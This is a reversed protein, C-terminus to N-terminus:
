LAERKYNKLLGERLARRARFLYSKVTGEPLKTIEGIEAYTLEETHYLTILTKLLPSLKDVEAQLISGLEQKLIRSETENEFPDFITNNTNILTDHTHEDTLNDLLILKKKELYGLCTHYAIQGVWTSLKSEFRFNGLHQFVKLYIDQVLDKRDATTHVMKFVLQGVLGETGKIILRFAANEGSLVRNVLARDASINNDSLNVLTYSLWLSCNNCCNCFFCPYLLM